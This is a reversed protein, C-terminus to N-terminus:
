RVSHCYGKNGIRENIKIDLKNIRRNITSYDPISPVKDDAHARVVGETQRCPLHLIDGCIASYNFLHIQTYMPLSKKVGM